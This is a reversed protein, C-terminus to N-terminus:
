TFVILFGSFCIRFPIILGISRTYKVNLSDSAHGELLQLSEHNLSIDAPTHDTILRVIFLIIILLSVKRSHEKTTIADTLLTYDLVSLLSGHHNPLLVLSSRALQNAWYAIILV